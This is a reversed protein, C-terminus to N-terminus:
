RRGTGTATERLAPLLDHYFDFFGQANTEPQSGGMQAIYIEDYGAEAYPRFAAIHRQRDTGYAITNRTM